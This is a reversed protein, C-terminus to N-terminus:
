PEKLFGMIRGEFDVEGGDLVRINSMCGCENPLIRSVPDIERLRKPSLVSCYHGVPQNRVICPATLELLLTCLPPCTSLTSYIRREAIPTDLDLFTPVLSSVSADGM